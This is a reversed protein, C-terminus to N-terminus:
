LLLLAPNEIYHKFSSLLEAGVAGDVVRHDCSLSVTMADIAKFQDNEVVVKKEGTGVALIASQPPNVIANFQKIGFMGLNSISFGGGQFEEPKLTGSKAKFVLKKMEASIAIISKQEANHIIPTILGDDIAVAVSIDVNNYQLTAEETWSANAAPVKKLAMASAKIIIDNVSIRYAAKGSEDKPAASNLQARLKLLDSINCDLTLYFHPINQKAHLLRAAIVQRINNNPIVKYEEENRSIINSSVPQSLFNMVDEKVVRGKPGTGNVSALSLNNQEAIKRAVPSSFSNNNDNVRKIVTLQDNAASNKVLSPKTKVSETPTVITKTELQPKELEQKAEDKVQGTENKKPKYDALSAESEDEELLLAIVENVLVNKSGEAVLIKGIKGEDVAEVEMTAKDTEIEAIVEGASVEDGEKKLWKALNGDKMTPSLAPMLIEIPM